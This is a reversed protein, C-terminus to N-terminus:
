AKSWLDEVGFVSTTLGALAVNADDTNLFKLNNLVVFLDLSDWAIRKYVSNNKSQTDDSPLQIIKNLSLLLNSTLGFLWCWNTYRAVKKAKTQNLNVVNLANLLTIQDLFLYGGYFFHKAATLIKIQTTNTATVASDWTKALLQLNTLPKLFRLVKRILAFNQQLKKNLPNGTSDFLLRNLYQLLRLIKERGNNTDLLRILKSLVPHYVLSDCVM